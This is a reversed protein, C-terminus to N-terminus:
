QLNLRWIWEKYSESAASVCMVQISLFYYHVQLQHIRNHMHTFGKLSYYYKLFRITCFFWFFTFSHTFTYMTISPHTNISYFLKFFWFIGVNVLKWCSVLRSEQGFFFMHIIEGSLQICVLTVYIMNHMIKKIYTALIGFM